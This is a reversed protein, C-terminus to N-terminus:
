LDAFQEPIGNKKAWALVYNKVAEQVVDKLLRREHHAIFRMKDTMRVDVIFTARTEGDECGAAAKTSTKKKEFIYQKNAM